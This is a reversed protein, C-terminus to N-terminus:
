GPGSASDRGRDDGAPRGAIWVGVTVVGITVVTDAMPHLVGLVPTALHGGAALTEGGILGAVSLLLLWPYPVRRPSAVRSAQAALMVWLAALVLGPSPHM